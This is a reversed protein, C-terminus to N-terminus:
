APGATERTISEPFPAEPRLERRLGVYVFVVGAVFLVIEIWVAESGSTIRHLETIWHVLLLDFSLFVGIAVMFGNFFSVALWRYVVFLTMALIAVAIAVGGIRGAMTEPQLSQIALSAM